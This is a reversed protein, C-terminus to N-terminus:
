CNPLASAVSYHRPETPRRAEKATAESDEGRARGGWEWLVALSTVSGTNNRLSEVAHSSIVTLIKVSLRNRRRSHAPVLTTKYGM